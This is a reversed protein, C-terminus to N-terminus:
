GDVLGVTKGDVWGDPVGVEHGETQGVVCGVLKEEEKGEEIVDICGETAGDLWGEDYGM